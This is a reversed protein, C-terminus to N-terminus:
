STRQSRSAALYGFYSVFLLVAPFFAYVAWVASPSSLRDPRIATGLFFVAWIANLGLSIMWFLKLNDASRQSGAAWLYGIWVPIGLCYLVGGFGWAFPVGMPDNLLGISQLIYGGGLIIAFPAVLLPPLGIFFAAKAITKTSM